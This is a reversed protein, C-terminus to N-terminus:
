NDPRIAAAAIHGIRSTPTANGFTVTNATANTGSDLLTGDPQIRMPHSANTTRTGSITPATKRTWAGGSRGRWDHGALRSLPKGIVNPSEAANTTSNSVTGTSRMAEATRPRRSM